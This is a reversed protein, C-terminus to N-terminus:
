AHVQRREVDVHADQVPQHGVPYLLLLGKMPGVRHAALVDDINVVVQDGLWMFMSDPPQADADSAKLLRLLFGEAEEVGDLLVVREKILDFISSAM